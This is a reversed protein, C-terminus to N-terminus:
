KKIYSLPIPIFASDHLYVFNVVHLFLYARSLLIQTCTVYVFADVFFFFVVSINDATREIVSTNRFQM